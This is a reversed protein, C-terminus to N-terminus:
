KVEKAAKAKAPAKKKKRPWLFNFINGMAIMFIISGIVINVVETPVGKMKTGGYQLGGFLFASFFVGIPSSNGILAVAIGNFGFNETIALKSVHLSVGMIQVAGALGALSGSIFMSKIMNKKVNIGGYEAADKNFGVARLEYGQVTRYLYLYIAIVAIAAIFIGLNLKAAGGFTSRIWQVGNEGIINSMWDAKYMIQSSELIDFTAESGDKDLLPITTMFNSFYFATWNLMITSIVENVGFRSKFYGAIGGWLGGVLMSSIIVFPIALFWPIHLVYGLTAATLAGMIYQGEAGINFLGTKFAFAVSLGTLILPTAKLV